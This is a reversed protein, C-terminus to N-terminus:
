ARRFLGSRWEGDEDVAEFRFGAEEADRRLDPWEGELIGSLILWGGSALAAAFGPLLPRLIGSEISRFLV